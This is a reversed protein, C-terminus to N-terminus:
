RQLGALLNPSSMMAYGVVGYHGPDVAHPNALAVALNGSRQAALTWLLKVSETPWRRETDRLAGLDMGADAFIEAVDLGQAALTDAVGRLWAASTTRSEMSQSGLRQQVAM